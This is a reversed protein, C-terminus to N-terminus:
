LDAPDTLVAGPGLMAALEDQPSPTPMTM